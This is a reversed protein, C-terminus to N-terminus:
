RYHGRCSAIEIRDDRIRYVLRNVADIRRSCFGVLDDKLFEPKGLGIGGREIDRILENIKKLKQKDNKQWYLYDDWADDYWIKRM